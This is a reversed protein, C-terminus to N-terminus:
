GAPATRPAPERAIDTRYRFVAPLANSVEGVSEYAPRRAEALDSGVAAVTLVRGGSSDVANEKIVSPGWFVHGESASVLPLGGVPESKAPYAQTAVVVSVCPDGGFDAAATDLEGDAASKLLAAFDGRVRPMLAQTEPDGFRVNFELVSPGSKTWM